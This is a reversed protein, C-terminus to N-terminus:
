AATAIMERKGNSLTVSKRRVMSGPPFRWQEGEKVPGIVVYIDERQRLAQVPRMADPGEGLLPMLITIPRDDSM